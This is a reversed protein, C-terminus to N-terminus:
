AGTSPGALVVKKSDVRGSIRSWIGILSLRMIPPSKLQMVLGSYSVRDVSGGGRVGLPLARILKSYWLFRVSVHRRICGVSFPQVWEVIGSSGDLTLGSPM